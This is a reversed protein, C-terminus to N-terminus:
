NAKARARSARAFVPRARKKRISPVSYLGISSALLWRPAHWTQYLVCPALATGPAFSLAHVCAPQRSHREALGLARCCSCSPVRRISFDPSHLSTRQRSAQNPHAAIYDVVAKAEISNEVFVRLKLHMNMGESPIHVVTNQEKSVNRVVQELIDQKKRAGELILKGDGLAAVFLNVVFFSQVADDGVKTAVEEAPPVPEEKVQPSQLVRAKGESGQSTTALAWHRCAFVDLLM